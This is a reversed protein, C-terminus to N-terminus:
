RATGISRHDGFGRWDRVLHLRVPHDLDSAETDTKKGAAEAVGQANRAVDAALVVVPKSNTAAAALVPPQVLVSRATVHLVPAVDQQLRVIEGSENAAFPINGVVNAHLTLGTPDTTQADLNRVLIGRTSEYAVALRVETPANPTPGLADTPWARRLRSGLDTLVCNATVELEPNRLAGIAHVDLNLAGAPLDPVFLALAKLDLEQGEINADITEAVM